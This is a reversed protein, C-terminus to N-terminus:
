QNTAPATPFEAHDMFFKRSRQEVRMALDRDNDLATSFTALGDVYSLYLDEIKLMVESLGLSKLLRMPEETSVNGWAYIIRKAKGQESLRSNMSYSHLFGCRAAYLDLGSVGLQSECQMYREAWNVFDTRRVESQDEPRSLNAVFDIGVYILVLAPTRFHNSLCHEIAAVHTRLNVSYNDHAGTGM